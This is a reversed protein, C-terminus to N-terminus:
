PYIRKFKSFYIKLVYKLKEYFTLITGIFQTLIEVDNYFKEIVNSLNKLGLIEFYYHLLVYEKSFKVIKNMISNLDENLIKSLENLFELCITTLKNLITCLNGEKLLQNIKFDYTKFLRNLEEFIKNQQNM